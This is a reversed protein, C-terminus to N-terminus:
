MFIQQQQQIRVLEAMTVPELTSQRLDLNNRNLLLTFIITSCVFM